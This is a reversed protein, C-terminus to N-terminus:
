TVAVVEEFVYLEWGIGFGQLARAPRVYMERAFLCSKNGWEGWKRRFAGSVWESKIIGDVWNGRITKNVWQGKICLRWINTSSSGTLLGAQSGALSNLTLNLELQAGVLGYVRM